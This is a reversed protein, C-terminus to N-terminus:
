RGVADSGRGAPIEPGYIQGDYRRAVEAAQERPVAVPGSPTQVIVYDSSPVGVRPQPTPQYGGTTGVPGLKEIRAGSRPTPESSACGAVLVATAVILARSTKM